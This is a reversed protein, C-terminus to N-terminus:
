PAAERPVSAVWLDMADGALETWAVFLRGETAFTRLSYLASDRDRPIAALPTLAGADFRALGLSRFGDDWIPGVVVSGDPTVGALYPESDAHLPSTASSVGLSGDYGLESFAVRSSGNVSTGDYTLAIVKDDTAHIPVSDLEVFEGVVPPAGAAAAPAVRALSFSEFGVRLALEGSALPWLQCDGSLPLVSPPLAREGVSGASWVSGVRDLLVVQVLGGASPRTWALALGPGSRVLSVYSPEYGGQFPSTTSFLLESALSDPDIARVELVLDDDQLSPFRFVAVALRGDDLRAVASARPVADVYPLLETPESLEGDASVELRVIGQAGDTFGDNAVLTAGGSPSSVWTLESANIWEVRAVRVADLAVGDRVCVAAECRFGGPCVGDDCAFPVDGLTPTCGAAGLLVGGLALAGAGSRMAGRTSDGNFAHDERNM